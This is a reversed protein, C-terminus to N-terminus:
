EPYLATLKGSQPKSRRAVRLKQIKQLLAGSDFSAGKDGYLAKDLQRLASALETDRCNQAVAELSRYDEQWAQSFWALLAERLAKLDGSASAQKLRRWLPQDASTGAAEPQQHPARRRERWWLLIFVFLLLATVAQSIQLWLPIAAVTPVPQTSNATPTPSPAETPSPSEYGAPLTVRLTKEALTATEFQETETNWWRVELAPLTFRGERTPVMAITEVREGTIGSATTEERTQAQDRYFNFGPLEPLPLEPLQTESLGEARLTIRRTIPEGAKLDEPDHSFHESLTVDRAPIWPGQAGAPIAEVQVSLPESSGRLREGSGYLDSLLSRGRRAPEIEYQLPPIELTGSKQPYVALTVEYVLHPRGGLNSVYENEAVAKVLTDPLDFASIGKNRWQVKSYLKLTLLIEEQVHVRSKNAEVQLFTDADTNNAQPETVQIDVARSRAGAVEIPPLTLQGTHKPTLTVQWEYYRDTDGNVMIVRSGSAVSLIEFNQQLPSFDPERPSADRLQFSVQLHDGMTIQQRPVDVRLEAAWASAAVGCLLLWLLFRIAGQSRNDATSRRMTRNGANNM